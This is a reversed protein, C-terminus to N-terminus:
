MIKQEEGYNWAWRQIINPVQSFQVFEFSIGDRAFFNLQFFAGINTKERSRTFGLEMRKPQLVVCANM